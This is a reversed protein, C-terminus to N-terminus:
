KKIPKFEEVKRLSYLMMMDETTEFLIWYSDVVAITGYLEVPYNKNEGKALLKGFSGEHKRAEDVTM